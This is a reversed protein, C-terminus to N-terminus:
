NASIIRVGRYGSGVKKVGYMLDAVVMTRLSESAKEQLRIGSAQGGPLNGVAYCFARNHILLNRHGGGEISANSAPVLTSLVVPIGYLEGHSGKILSAKGFQSADYLKQVALVEVFYAKPHFFFICEEKPINYSEIISIASELDSSKIGATSANVVRSINAATALGFLSQELAKALPHAMNEAYIEKLRYQKGVQAAQFDAFVRASAKWTDIDLITRTDTVVNGSLEGTTTTIDSATYTADHPIMVSKGGETVYDSFDKFFKATYLKERFLRDIYPSWIDPRYVLYTQGKVAM